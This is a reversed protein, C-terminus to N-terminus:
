SSGTLVVPVLDGSTTAAIIAHEGVWEVARMSAGQCMTAVANGSRVHLVSLTGDESVSAALRGSPSPSVCWGIHDHVPVMRRRM